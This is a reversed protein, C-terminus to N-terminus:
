LQTRQPSLGQEFRCSIERAATSYIFRHYNDIADLQRDAGHSLTRWRGILNGSSDFELYENVAQSYVGVRDRNAAHLAHGAPHRSGPKFAETSLMTRVLRGQEDYERWIDHKATAKFAEDHVKGVAWLHGNPGFMIRASAFPANPAVAVSVTNIDLSLVPLGM